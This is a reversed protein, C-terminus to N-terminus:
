LGVLIMWTMLFYFLGVPYVVLLERKPPSSGRFFRLSAWCAWGWIIIAIFFNIWFLPIFTILIAGLCLPALCYGMVCVTQFFSLQAGLFKANLTVIAGGVWVLVFVASFILARQSDSGKFSLVVALILCLALPGWLDWDRMERDDGLPPCVVVVMKRGISRLDRLITDKIPEDLTSIAEHSAEVYIESM